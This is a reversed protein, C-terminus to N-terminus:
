TIHATDLWLQGQSTTPKYWRLCTTPGTQRRMRALNELWGCLPIIHVSWKGMLKLMTPCPGLRRSGWSTVCSGFLTAILTQESIVSFSALAGLILIYGQYLFKAVIKPTQTPIVYAMVHKMFHDQFILINVVKPPKNFDIMMEISTYDVHFLELLATAIIPDLPVKANAGEHQIHRKCQQLMKQMQKVMGPWWFHDQILFQTQQCGKHGADRQCGNLAAIWHVWPVVIQLIEEIEGASM